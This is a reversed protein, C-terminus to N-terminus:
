QEARLELYRTGAANLVTESIVSFGLANFIRLASGSYKSFLPLGAGFEVPEITLFVRDIARANLFWDHVGTGGLILGHQMPYIDQVAAALDAPKKSNRPDLWLQTKRQWGTHRTSFIIRRRDPRDATEHTNRGMIAWPAAAVHEFFISQEEASAWSAPNDTPHRAIFGDESTVVVLHFPPRSM